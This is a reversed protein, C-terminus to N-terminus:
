TGLHVDDSVRNFPRNPAGDPFSRSRRHRSTSSPGAILRSQVIHHGIAIQGTVEGKIRVDATEESVTAKM